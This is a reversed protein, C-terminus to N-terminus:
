PNNKLRHLSEDFVSVPSCLSIRLFEMGQSGFISGPTIFIRKNYLLDDSLQESNKFRSPIRAWVFMGAESGSVVCDLNHMLEIAKHKRQKYIENLKNHWEPDVKLAKAAAMQIPKYMGSDMNSKFVLVADILDKCGSVAGIRWGAMNYNKSLSTLELAHYKADKIQLISLPNENMILSYANDHCILINHKQGFEILREFFDYTAVAGTPMNPYNVWMIKVKSLDQSEIKSLDPM